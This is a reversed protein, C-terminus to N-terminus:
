PKSSPVEAEEGVWRMRSVGKQVSGVAKGAKRREQICAEGESDQELQIRQRSSEAESRKKASGKDSEALGERSM